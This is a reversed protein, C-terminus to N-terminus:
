ILCQLIRQMLSAVQGHLNQVTMQSLNLNHEQMVIKFLSATYSVLKPLGTRETQTNQIMSVLKSLFRKTASTELPYNVKQQSIYRVEKQMLLAITEEFLPAGEMNAM